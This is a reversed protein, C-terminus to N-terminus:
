RLIRNLLDALQQSALVVQMEASPRWRNIYEPQLKPGPPYFSPQLVIKCSQEAWFVSNKSMDPISALQDRLPRLRKLYERDSLHQYYFMGSDWLRHLNTGEGNYTLQIDNGGKDKGNGAHLPQYIDGVFHIVFKLAEVRQARAARPDALIRSYQTVAPIICEGNRCATRPLYVCGDEGMNIYHLKATKKYLAADTDRLEDAWSAVGAMYPKPEDKLLEKVQALARPSLQEEALQAVLRHGQGGWAFCSVPFLFLVAFLLKSIPKM